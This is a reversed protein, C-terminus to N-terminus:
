WIKVLGIMIKSTAITSMFELGTRAYALALIWKKSCLSAKLIVKIVQTSQAVSSLFFFFRCVKEWYQHEPKKFGSNGNLPLKSATEKGHTNERADAAQKSTAMDFGM